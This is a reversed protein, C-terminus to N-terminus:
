LRVEWRVATNRLEDCEVARHHDHRIPCRQSYETGKDWSGRWIRNPRWQERCIWSSAETPDHRTVLSLGTDCCLSIKPGVQVLPTIVIRQVRLRPGRPKKQKCSTRRPGTFTATIVSLLHCVCISFRVGTRNNFKTRGSYRAPRTPEGVM